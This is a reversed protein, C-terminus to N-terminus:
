NEENVIKIENNDKHTEDTYLLTGQVTVEEKDESKRQIPIFIESNETM